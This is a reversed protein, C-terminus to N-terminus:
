SRLRVRKLLAKDSLAKACGVVVCYLPESAVVVPMKVETAIMKPLGALLAGGGCLVIGKQAVDAALEPPADELTERIADVITKVTPALAERIQNSTLKVQKPMGKELDRGRVTMQKEVALPYASGLLIKVDEATKEGLALGYRFRVYHIIDADMTDGGVKLSKGSVIGGISIVAMDSTGGGIDVIMAGTPELVDIGAGVAAAMPEEILHAERAGSEYAVDFLARREVESVNSPIGLIVRPRPISFLIGPKEHVKHVFYSLMALTTDYDYIVGDKLPRVTTISMPTRGIMKRADVGIAIVQKTKKHLAVISPERIVIGKGSVHVLTNATGLDVALDSSFYGLIHDVIPIM